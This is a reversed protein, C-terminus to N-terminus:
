LAYLCETVTGFSLGNQIIIQNRMVCQGGGLSDFFEEEESRQQEMKMMMNSSRGKKHKGKKRSIVKCIGGMKQGNGAVVGQVTECMRQEMFQQIPVPIADVTLAEKGSVGQVGVGIASLDFDKVSGMAMPLPIADENLSGGMMPIPLGMGMSMVSPLPIPIPISGDDM